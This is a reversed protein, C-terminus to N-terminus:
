ENRVTHQALEALQEIVGGYYRVCVKIASAMGHAEAHSGLRNIKLVVWENDMHAFLCM